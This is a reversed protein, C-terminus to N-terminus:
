LTQSLCTGLLGVVFCSSSAPSVFLLPSVKLQRLLTACHWWPWEPKRWVRGPWAVTACCRVFGWCWFVLCDASMFTFWVTGCVFVGCYPYHSMTDLWLSFWEISGPLLCISALGMGIRNGQCVLRLLLYILCTQSFSCLVLLHSEFGAWFFVLSGVFVCHHSLVIFVFHGLHRGM